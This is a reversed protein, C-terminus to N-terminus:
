GEVGATGENAPSTGEATGEGDEEFYRCGPPQFERLGESPLLTCNDPKHDYIKCLNDDGLMECRCPAFAMASHGEPLPTFLFGHYMMWNMDSPGVPWM